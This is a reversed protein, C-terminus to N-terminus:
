GLGLKPEVAAQHPAVAVVVVFGDATELLGQFVVAVARHGVPADGIGRPGVVVLAPVGEDFLLELLGHGLRAQHRLDGQHVEVARRRHFLGQDARQLLAVLGLLRAANIFEEGPVIGIRRGHAIDVM